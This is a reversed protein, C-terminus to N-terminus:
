AGAGWWQKSQPLELGTRGVSSLSAARITDRPLVGSVLAETSCMTHSLRHLLPRPVVPTFNFSRSQLTEMARSM